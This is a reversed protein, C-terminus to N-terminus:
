EALEDHADRQDLRQCSAGLRSAHEVLGSRTRRALV